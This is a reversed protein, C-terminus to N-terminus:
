KMMDDILHKIEKLQSTSIHTYLETTSISSHGLLSQIVRISVGKELLHTAFSHRLTHCSVHKNIGARRAASSVIKQINRESLKGKPGTFLYEENREKQMEAHKKLDEFLFEPINFIRDKRGKAQRIHGIKENFNLDSIKLNILESVRMGCAYMLSVMLRSKKTDISNILLNVEEKSLVSPIKKERKPRKIGATPDKKLLNSYAYRVASLFLIVSSAARDTLKEALFKKVDDETIEEPTKKSFSLLQKNADLYNRITYESNKSIKLEVELKELFEEPTM